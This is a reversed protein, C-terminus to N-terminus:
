IVQKPRILIGLFIFNQTNKLWIKMFLKDWDSLWKKLPLQAGVFSKGQDSYVHKPHIGNKTVFRRWGLLFDNTYQTDAIELHIVRTPNYAIVLVCGLTTVNRTKKIKIPDFMDFSVSSFPSNHCKLDFPPLQGMQQKMLKRIAICCKICKAAMSKLLQKGRLIHIGNQRLNIIVVRYGQHGLNEHMYEAYLKTIKSKSTLAIPTQLLRM